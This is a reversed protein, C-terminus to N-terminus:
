AKRLNEGVYEAIAQRRSDPDAACHLENQTYECASAFLKAFISSRSIVQQRNTYVSTLQFGGELVNTKHGEFLVDDGIFLLNQTTYPMIAVDIRGSAITSDKLVKRLAKARRRWREGGYRMGGLPSVILQIVAGARLCKLMEASEDALLKYYDHKEPKDARGPGVNALSSMAAQQRIIATGPHRSRLQRLQGVIQSTRESPDRLERPIRRGRIAAAASRVRAKLTPFDMGYFHCNLSRLNFPVDRENRAILVVDKTRVHALGLEYFVNPNRGTLDAVILEASSINEMVHFLVAGTYTRTDSRECTIGDEELAEKIATYVPKLEDRFPMLVFCTDPVVFSDRFKFFDHPHVLELDSPVIM